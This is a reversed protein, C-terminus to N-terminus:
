ADFRDPPGYRESQSIVGGQRQLDQLEASQAFRMGTESNEWDILLVVEQPDNASQFAMSGRSGNAQRLAMAGSFSRKWAAYDAVKLRVMTYAM